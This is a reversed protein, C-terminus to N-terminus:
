NNQNGKDEAFCKLMEAIEVRKTDSVMQPKYPNCSAAFTLQPLVDISHTVQRM